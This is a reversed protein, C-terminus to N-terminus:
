GNAWLADEDRALTPALLLPNALSWQSSLWFFDSWYEGQFPVKTHPFRVVGDDGNM